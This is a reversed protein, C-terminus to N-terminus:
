KVKKILLLRNEVFAKKFEDSDYLEKAMNYAKRSLRDKECDELNLATELANRLSLVSKVDCVFGNVNDKIFDTPGKINSVITPTAVAAAEIVVLGFGERYSPLVLYDFSAHYKEADNVAGVYFIHKNQMSKSVLDGDLWEPHDNPGVLMLYANPANLAIFAELLENIGKEVLLRGVFGFLIANEPIRYKTRIEKKWQEKKNIDYRSMNVGCASGNMLVSGKEKEYLKEELSFQLNAFSDPQVHTSLLCTIKEISKYFWYKLGKYDTYAIGWQCFIRVPVHAFFGAIASYLAANSTAYQIVDFREKRFIRYLQWTTKIVEWPSVNGHMIQVPIHRVNGLLDKGIFDAPQSITYCDFGNEDAYKLIDIMFAKLTIPLTSIGCIKYKIM